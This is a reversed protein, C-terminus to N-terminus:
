CPAVMLNCEPPVRQLVDELPTRLALLQAFDYKLSQDVRLFASRAANRLTCFATRMGAYTEQQKQGDARVGPATAGLHRLVAMNLQSAADDILPDNSLGRLEAKLFGLAKLDDLPAGLPQALTQELATLRLDIQQWYSHEMLRRRLTDALDVAAILAAQIEPTAPTMNFTSSFLRVDFDRSVAFMAADVSKLERLLLTRAKALGFARENVDPRALWDEADDLAAQLSAFQEVQAGSLEAGSAAKAIAHRVRACLPPMIEAPADAGVKLLDLLPAGAVQMMHLADHVNKLAALQNLAKTVGELADRAKCFQRFVNDDGLDGFRPQPALRNLMTTLATMLAQIDDDFGRPPHVISPAKEMVGRRLKEESWKREILRLLFSAAFDKNELGIKELCCNLQEDLPKGSVWVDSQTLAGPYLDIVAKVDSEDCCSSVEKRLQEMQAPELNFPIM